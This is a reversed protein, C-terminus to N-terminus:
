VPNDKWTIRSAAAAPASSSSRQRRRTPLQSCRRSFIRRKKSTIRRLRSYRGGRRSIQTRAYTLPSLCGGSSTEDV